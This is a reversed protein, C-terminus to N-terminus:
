DELDQMAKELEADSLLTTGNEHERENVDETRVRVGSPGHIRFHWANFEPVSMHYLDLAISYRMSARNRVKEAERILIDFEVVDAVSMANRNTQYLHNIYKDKNMQIEKIANLDERSPKKKFEREIAEHENASVCGSAGISAGYM